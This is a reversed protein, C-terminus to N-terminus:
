IRPLTIHLKADLDSKLCKYTQKLYFQEPQEVIGSVKINFTNIEKSIAKKLSVLNHEFFISMLNGIGGSVTANIKTMFDVSGKATWTVKTGNLTDKFKISSLYEEGDSTVKQAISDNPLVFLTTMKGDGDKGSWSLHAGKGLSIDSYQLQLDADNKKELFWDEWNKYDNVYNFVIPRPVNIVISQKVYFASKQTAIFVTVAIVALLILLFIYKLIRMITTKPYLLITLPEFIIFFM